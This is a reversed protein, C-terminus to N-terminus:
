CKSDKKTFLELFKNVSLLHPILFRGMTFILFTLMVIWIGFSISSRKRISARSRITLLLRTM